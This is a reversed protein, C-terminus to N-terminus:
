KKLNNIFLSIEKVIEPNISSDPNNYSTTVQATMDRDKSNKLVHNMNDIIIKNANTNAKALLDAHELPVQLDTAGQIILIPIKLNSIEKQPNYKLWSIMYPQVSPRFLPNLSLPVNSITEGQELKSIYGFVMDKVAPQTSLQPELQERLVDGASKGLGALSIFASVKKNNGAAIMGILSGESHGLIIIHSFRKDKSLTDIWLKVDNVYDEFRLSEESKLAYKSEGIGRKDFACSAINKYFLGDALQKLSNNKLNPQNGNRDTPGSGSIFIVLPIATKSEPVKLTGYIDGSSTKLTYADEKIILQASLSLSLIVSICIFSIKKM